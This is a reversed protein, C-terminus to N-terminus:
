GAFGYLRAPNDVLIRHLQWPDPAWDYLLDLLKGADPLLEGPVRSHPWDTGWVCRDPAAAIVTQAPALLDDYPAGTFSSRYSILKVWCKESDLLRLLAQFGPDNMGREAHFKGMHDIVVPVPLSLLTETLAPLQEAEMYVQIHWGFPAILQAISRVQDLGTSNPTVSNVRAGRIGRRDMDRLAAENFTDDIVAVGRARDQGLIELTDFTCSHDMGYATPQVVVMRELGLMSTMALYSDINV